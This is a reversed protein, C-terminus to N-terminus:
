MVNGECCACVRILLAIFVMEHYGVAVLIHV